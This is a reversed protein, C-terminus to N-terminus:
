SIGEKIKGLTRSLIKRINADTTEWREQLDALVEPDFTQKEATKDYNWFRAFLVDLERDALTEVIDRVKTCQAKRESSFTTPSPNHVEIEAFLKETIDDRGRIGMLFLRHAITRLWKRVQRRIQTPDSESTAFTEAGHTFVRVFTDNVLDEVGHEGISNAYARLCAAALFKFHRDYFEGWADRAAEEDTAQWSVMTLLDADTDNTFETETKSAAHSM